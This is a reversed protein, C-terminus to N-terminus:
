AFSQTGRIQPKTPIHPVKV